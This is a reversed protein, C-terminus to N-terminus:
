GDRGGTGTVLRTCNLALLLLSRDSSLLLQREPLRHLTSTSVQLIRSLEAGTVRFICGFL